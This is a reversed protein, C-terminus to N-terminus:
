RAVCGFGLAACWSIKLALRRLQFGCGTDHEFPMAFFVLAGKFGIKFGFFNLADVTQLVICCLESFPQSGVRFVVLAALSRNALAAAGVGLRRFHCCGFADNLAVGAHGCNIRFVLDDDFRLRVARAAFLLQEYGHDFGDFGGLDFARENGAVGADGGIGSIM